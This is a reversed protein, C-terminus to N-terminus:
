PTAGEFIVHDGLGPRHALRRRFSLFPKVANVGLLGTLAGEDRYALVFRSADVDGWILESTHSASPLGIVEMRLGFQDSWVYPEDVFALAGARGRMLNAAAVQAQAVAGTWHEVRVTRGLDRRYWRAVDGVAVVDDAAFLNEDCVVGDDITLGSGALWETNPRAGVSVLLCDATVASADSLTVTLSEGSGEATIAEVGTNLLLEVGASRMRDALWRSARAGLVRHMPGAQPEVVTVHLGLSLATSAVESGIFGAGIIVIRGHLDRALGASDELTRLVHISDSEGTTLRELTRPRSGTAVVLADYNVTKGDAGTVVKTTTDVAIAPQGLLWEARLERAEARSLEVRSQDWEGSLFQKSLPPRDYPLHREAGILTLGGVFGQARLAEATRLGALSAGVIAVHDNAGLPDGNM